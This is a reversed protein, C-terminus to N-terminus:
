ELTSCAQILSHLPSLGPKTASVETCSGVMAGVAWQCTTNKEQIWAIEQCGLNRALSPNRNLSIKKTITFYM